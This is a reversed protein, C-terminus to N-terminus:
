LQIKIGRITVRVVYCRQNKVSDATNKQAFLAKSVLKSVFANVCFRAPKPVFNQKVCFIMKRKGTIISQCLVSLNGRRRKPSEKKM